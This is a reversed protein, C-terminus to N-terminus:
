LVSTLGKAMRSGSMCTFPVFSPHTENIKHIKLAASTHKALKSRSSASFYTRSDRVIMSFVRSCDCYTKSIRQMCFITVDAACM